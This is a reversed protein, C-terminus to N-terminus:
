AVPTLVQIARPVVEIEVPAPGLIEGDGHFFCPRDASLVVKRARARGVHGEPVKGRGMLGPLLALVELARLDGLVAVDLWGDDIRAGPALRVGAGYSSTNLVAAVLASAEMPAREGEPFEVRVRLPKFEHFARLASAVYRMRGPIRRYPGAAIQTAAVDLGVGGGGTYLRERGDSTRVRVLDVRRPRGHLVARVAAVPDHPLGLALAFDNGGGAPLVGLVVGNGPAMRREGAGDGAPGEEIKPALEDAPIVSSGFAANALGQFTGDGGLAFLFRSGAAIAGRARSELDQASETLVFDGRIKQSEFVERIRLLFKGARGAGALSNVFVAAPQDRSM